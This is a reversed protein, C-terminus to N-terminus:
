VNFLEFLESKLEDDLSSFKAELRSNYDSVFFALDLISVNSLKRFNDIAYNYAKVFDIARYKEAEKSKINTLSTSNNCLHSYGIYNITLVKQAVAILIPIVAVDEYCRLPPLFLANSFLEKKFAFIWYVAYKKRSTSWIKLAEIGSLVQPEECTFNYRNPDKYVSDNILETQYRIIDPNEFNSISTYLNQLLQFIISDDADVFLLYKGSALSIGRQRAVSVGNNEFNYVKVKTSKRSYERLIDQTSDTSGDNIVIIEFDEFEQALISYLCHHLTREANYVPVIVSFFM